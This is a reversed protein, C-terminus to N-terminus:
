AGRDAARHGIEPHRYSKERRQKAASLTHLVFKVNLSYGFRRSDWKETWDCRYAPPENGNPIDICSIDPLWQFFGTAVSATISILQHNPALYSLHLFTDFVNDGVGFATTAHGGVVLDPTRCWRNTLGHEDSVRVLEAATDNRISGYITHADCGAASASAATAVLIAGALAIILGVGRLKLKHTAAFTM